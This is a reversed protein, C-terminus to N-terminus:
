FPTLTRRIRGIRANLITRIEEETAQIKTAWNSASNTNRLNTISMWDALVKYVLLEHVLRRLLEITTYSFTEPLLLKLEYVAREELTDDLETTDDNLSVKTYPYCLEVCQAFALDLVRTVRDVNGDECIDTVQHRDHETGAEMVDGEVYAYNACDYLLQERKFKLTVTRCKKVKCCRM